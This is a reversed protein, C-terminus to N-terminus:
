GVGVPTASAGSRAAARLPNASRARWSGTARAGGQVEQGDLIVQADARITYLGGVPVNLSGGWTVKFAPDLQPHISQNAGLTFNPTPMVFVMQRQGDTTTAILGPQLPEIRAAASAAPSFLLWLAVFLAIFHSQCSM